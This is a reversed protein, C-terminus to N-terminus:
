VIELLKIEFILDKGALPHNADLTISQDEVKTVKVPIRRGQGDQMSLQQGVQPNLDKPIEEYDIEMFHDDRVPGYAQEAPIQAEKTDGITMGQVAQDFGAIMQGAGVKFELPENRPISSDFTTGDHLRGTYHVRVTDGLKAQM